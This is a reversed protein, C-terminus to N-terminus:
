LLTKSTHTKKKKVEFKNELTTKKFRENKNGEM